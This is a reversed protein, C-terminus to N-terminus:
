IFFPFNFYDIWWKLRQIAIKRKGEKKKGTKKEDEMGIESERRRHGMKIKKKTQQESKRGRKLQWCVLLCTVCLFGDWEANHGTDSSFKYIFM